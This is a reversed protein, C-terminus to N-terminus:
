LSLSGRGEGICFASLDSRFPSLAQSPGHGGGVRFQTFTSRLSVTSVPTTDKTGACLAGLTKVAAVVCRAGARERATAKGLEHAELDRKQEAGVSYEQSSALQQKALDLM